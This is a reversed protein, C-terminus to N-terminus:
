KEEDTTTHMKYIHVTNNNINFTPVNYFDIPCVLPKAILQFSEHM